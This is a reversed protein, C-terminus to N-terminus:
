ILWANFSLPYNATVALFILKINLTFVKILTQIKLEKVEKFRFILIMFIVISHNCSLIFWLMHFNFILGHCPTGLIHVADRSFRNM